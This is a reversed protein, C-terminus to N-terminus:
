LGGFISRLANFIVDVVGATPQGIITTQDTSTGVNNAEDRSVAQLHYVHSAPLGSIVVVHNTVMSTDEATKASYGGSSGQGYAVQSSGPKDTKWSVLIQGQADAGTGKISPQITVASVTPPRTDLGTHFIQQDSTTTNGLVDQSVAYLHYPTNYTLGPITISHTTTLATDLLALDGGSQAGYSVQTTAPVNTTWTVTESGTLAGPVSQFDVNSIRPAPPTSFSFATPNAYQNGDKDFPDLRYTYTTGDTLDNLPISYSSTATSTNLMKTATFEGPGYYLEIATTGTTTFNLTGTHLNINTVTVNSVVPAKLTTFTSEESIGTNGDTDAWLVRYFYTKGAELNNLAVSHNVVQGSNSASTPFYHNSSTGYEIQSDSARDTTWTVTATRISAASDPGALLNAPSTFKGTPTLNVISGFGGCNNASDCAKIQYYYKQQTLNSDVYSAGATSAVNTFTTGDVSRYVKYTAIGAGVTSPTNWSLALKWTSTLKTSIDAVDLNLPVGPAPTNATFTTSAATAYNINGAEDKAVVYFTNDGPETAYAGPDLSTQGAATFTCNSVSPLVNVTYCYTINSVSGIFTAPALWSFGFLNTINTGPTATANQPSSPATSNIKVVTTVYAASVNGAADWTRFYVINNGDNLNAYDPSSVTAYSGSNPLLDTADQTGTHSAGYWTGGSGIRYQLGVVGSNDDNAADSGTTSWNFTVHKNSVFESPASIFTPNTPVVNDYKFSFQAPSGAYVNDAGDIAKINLYYPSNSSTMASGMLGAISTDLSTGSVAFPCAGNTFLPSTGLYGKTTVPNGTSDQGLYLCYGSIGTGGFDDAGATWTFYPNGTDWAGSAVSAGGNSRFGLISSANTPPAVTDSSAYALSISTLTPTASGNGTFSVQYQAYRTKDPACSTTADDGTSLVACASFAGADSLDAQNGSRVKISVSTGAPITGAYAVTGWNNPIIGDFIASTLVGSTSYADQEAGITNFAGTENKQQAAIYATSRATNSIRIEDLSGPIYSSTVYSGIYVPNTNGALNITSGFVKSVLLVGDEYLNVTSGSKTAVVHHWTGNTPILGYSGFSNYSWLSSDAYTIQCGSASNTALTYGNDKHIFAADSVCSTLSIWADLTIGTSPSQLSTSNPVVVTNNTGNFKDAGGIQGIATGQLTVNVSSSNNANSTSDQHQGSTENLHWVGVYNNDWVGTKQQHDSASNNGYYLNVYNNTTDATITPVMVWVISTGAPNWQDIQYPLDTGTADTFRIDQGANQAHAYTFNSSTLKVEVPFSTLTESTTGLSATSNDFSIKERYKWNTDCDSNSCWGALGTLKLQSATSTVLNTSSSYQNSTSTGVGGDWTTQIWSSLGFVSHSLALFTFVIVASGIATFADHFPSRGRWGHWRKYAKSHHILYSHTRYIVGNHKKKVTILALRRTISRKFGTLSREIM